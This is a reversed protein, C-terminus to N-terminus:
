RRSRSRAKGVRASRCLAERDSVLYGPERELLTHVHWSILGRQTLRASAIDRGVTEGEAPAVADAGLVLLRERSLPQGIREGASAEDMGERADVCPAPGTHPAVGEGYHVEM